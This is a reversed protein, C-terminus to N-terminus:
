IRRFRSRVSEAHGELGEAEALTEIAKRHRALGARTAEVTHSTKYFSWVSLPSFFRATGGTPLTHNPGAIYDGVPEPTHPGIFIAGAHRLQKAIRRAGACLVEIHEPAKMNSLEVAQAETKVCIVAGRRRISAAAVARRPLLALQRKVETELAKARDPGAGILIAISAAEEDHEAQALMDAAIWDLRTKGDAIILVETPGAIMDIDVRGFLQRKAAAVYINGPGVIKDVRPVSATGCALAALAQAGGLRFVRDVGALAAAALTRRDAQGDAQPPTVLIIEDVGAVRAPIVDMLVTSPYAAKGGPAYVGVRELPQVRLEMRGLKPDNWTWGKLRQRRHFAEIRAAALKLADRLEPSLAREARRLEAAPVEFQNPALKVKDLELTLRSLAADGRRRVAQIIGDVRDIVRAPIDEGRRFYRQVRTRDRPWVFQKMNLNDQRIAPRGPTDRDDPRRTCVRVLMPCKHQSFL